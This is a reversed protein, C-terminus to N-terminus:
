EIIRILWEKPVEKYTARFSINSSNYTLRYPHPSTAPKAKYVFRVIGLLKKTKAQNILDDTVELLVHTIPCKIYEM